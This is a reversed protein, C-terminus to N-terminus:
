KSVLIPKDGLVICISICSIRSQWASEIHLYIKPFLLEFITLREEVKLDSVKDFARNQAEHRAQYESYFEGFDNRQLIGLVIKKLSEPLEDASAVKTEKWDPLRFAQLQEKAYEPNLM